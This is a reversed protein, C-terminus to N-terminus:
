ATVALLRKWSSFDEARMLVEQNRRAPFSLAVKKEEKKAETSPMALPTRPWNEGPQRLFQPGRVWRSDCNLESAHLGRSCDDASNQQGPVHRWQTPCTKSQIEGVRLETLPEPKAAALEDIERLRRLLEQEGVAASARAGVRPRPMPQPNSAGFPGVCVWGLPTREAVPTQPPGSRREWVEHLAPYDSGILLDIM